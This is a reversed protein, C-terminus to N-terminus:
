TPRKMRHSATTLFQKVANDRADRLQEIVDTNPLAGFLANRSEFETCQVALCRRLANHSKSLVICPDGCITHICEGPLAFKRPRSGDHLQCVISVNDFVLEVDMAALEGKISGVNAAHINAIPM